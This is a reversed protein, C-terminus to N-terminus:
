GIVSTWSFIYLLSLYLNTSRKQSKDILEYNIMLEQRLSKKADKELSAPEDQSAFAQVSRM